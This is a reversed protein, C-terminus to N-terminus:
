VGSETVSFIRVIMRHNDDTWAGSPRQAGRAPAPKSVLVRRKWETKNLVRAYEAEATNATRIAESM